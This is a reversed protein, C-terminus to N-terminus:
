SYCVLAAAGLYAFAELLGAGWNPVDQRGVEHALSSNPVLVASTAFRLSPLLLLGFLAYAGFETLTATWSHFEGRAAHGVVAGTAALYGGFSLGAAANGRGLEGTVNFGCARRYVLAALVLPIQSIGFFALAFEVNEITWGASSAASGTAEDPALVGHVLFGQALYAGAAALAVGVNRDDLVCKRLGLERLEFHLVVASGVLVLFAASAVSVVITGLETVIAGKNETAVVAVAAALLAGGYGLVLIAAAPNDRIFLEEDLKVGRLILRGFAYKGLTVLALATAVAALASALKNGILFLEQLQEPPV